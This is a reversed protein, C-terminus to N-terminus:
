VAQPFCSNVSDNSCPVQKVCTLLLEARLLSPRVTLKEFSENVIKLRLSSVFLIRVARAARFSNQLNILTSEFVGACGGEGWGLSRWQVLGNGLCNGQLRGGEGWM